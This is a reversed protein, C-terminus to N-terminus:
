VKLYKRIAVLSSLVGLGIGSALQILLLRWFDSVFIQFINLDQFLFQIRPSLSWAISFIIVFSTLSSVAGSIFGQVLFPGRIFWNSAGVLRQIKIEEKFNYIALRVTNFVVLVAIIALILSLILGIKNTASTLSFVREIVPRRQHYDIKSIINEFEPRELFSALAEYQSAALTKVNLSALFPNGGVEKVAAMLTEDNGYRKSFDELAQEKSVFSSEKVEPIQDIKQYLIQIEDDAADEKFYVSIDVKEQLASILVQSANQFLFLSGILLTTLTVIFIAAATLGRERSFNNLGIKVIRKIM